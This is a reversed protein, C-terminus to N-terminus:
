QIDLCAAKCYKRQYERARTVTATEIGEYKLAAAVGVQMFQIAVDVRNERLEGLAKLDQVIRLNRESNLLFNMNDFVLQANRSGLWYGVPGALVVVFSLITVLARNSNM